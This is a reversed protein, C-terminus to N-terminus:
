ARMYSEVDPREEYACTWDNGGNGETLSSSLEVEPEAHRGLAEAATVKFGLGLGGGGTCRIVASCIRSSRSCMLCRYARSMSIQRWLFTFSYLRFFSMSFMLRDSAARSTMRLVKCSQSRPSYKADSKFCWFNASILSRRSFPTLALQAFCGGHSKACFPPLGYKPGPSFYPRGTFPGGTGM